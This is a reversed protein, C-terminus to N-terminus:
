RWLLARWGARPQRRAAAERELWAAVDIAMVGARGVAHKLEDPTCAFETCWADLEPRDAINVRFRDRQGHTGLQTGFQTDLQNAM